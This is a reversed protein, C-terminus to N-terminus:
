ASPNTREAYSKKNLRLTLHTKECHASLKIKSLERFEAFFFGNGRRKFRKNYSMAYSIFFDKIQFEVAEEFNIEKKLYKKQHSKRDILPIGRLFHFLSEESVTKVLWHVHDDSLIYSYTELYKGRGLCENENKDTFFIRKKRKVRKESVNLRELSLRLEL